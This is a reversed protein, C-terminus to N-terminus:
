VGRRHDNAAYLCGVIYVFWLSTTVVYSASTALDLFLLVLMSAFLLLWVFRTVVSSQNVAVDGQYQAEDQM